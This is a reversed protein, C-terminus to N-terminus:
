AEGTDGWAFAAAMEQEDEIGNWAVEGSIRQLLDPDVEQVEALIDLSYELEATLVAFETLIREALAPAIAYTPQTCEDCYPEQPQAIAGCHACMSTTEDPDLITETM